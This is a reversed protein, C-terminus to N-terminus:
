YGVQAGLHMTAGSVGGKIIAYGETQVVPAKDGPKKVHKNRGKKPPKPIIIITEQGETVMEALEAHAMKPASTDTFSSASRMHIEKIPAKSSIHHRKPELSHVLTRGSSAKYESSATQPEVDKIALRDYFEALLVRCTSSSVTSFAISRSDRKSGM